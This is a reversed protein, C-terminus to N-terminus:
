ERLTGQYIYLSETDCYDQLSDRVAKAMEAAREVEPVSVVKEASDVKVQGCEQELVLMYSSSECVVKAGCVILVEAFGDEVLENICHYYIGDMFLSGGRDKAVTIHELFDQLCYTVVLM